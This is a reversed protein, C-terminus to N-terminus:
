GTVRKLMDRRQKLRATLRRYEDVLERQRLEEVDTDDIDTLKSAGYGALGGAIPPALLAAPIGVQLTKEVVPKAVGTIANLVSDVGINASKITQGIEDETMGLEACKRLFGVKFAEKATLM